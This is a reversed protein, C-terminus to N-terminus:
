ETQSASRWQASEPRRFWLPDFGWDKNCSTKLPKIAFQENNLFGFLANAEEQVEIGKINVYVELFEM